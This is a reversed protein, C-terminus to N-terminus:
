IKFDIHIHNGDPDWVNYQRIGAAPPEGCRYSEEREELLARFATEDDAAFAFHELRLNVESGVLDEGGSVLHIVPYEGAYLWAGDFPFDPRWGSKLGLIDEYWAVMGELNETRVNVHDLRKIAMLTEQM